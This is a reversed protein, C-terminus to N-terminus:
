NKKGTYESYKKIAKFTIGRWTNGSVKNKYEYGDENLYLTTGGALTAKQDQFLDLPSKTGFNFEETAGFAINANGTTFENSAETFDTLSAFCANGVSVGFFLQCSFAKLKPLSIEKVSTSRKLCYKGVSEVNPFQYSTVGTANEFASEPLSTLNEGKITTVSTNNYLSKMVALSTGAINLTTVNQFYNVFNTGMYNTVEDTTIAAGDLTLTTLAERQAKYTDTSCLDTLSMATNNADGGAIEDWGNVTVGGLTLKNEDLLLWATYVYGSMFKSEKTVDALLDEASICDSVYERGDGDTITFTANSTITNQSPAVVAYGLLPNTTDVSLGAGNAGFQTTVSSTRTPDFYISPQISNGDTEWSYQGTTPLVNSDFSMKVSRITVAEGQKNTIVYRVTAPVHHFTIDVASANAGSSINGESPQFAEGYIYMYESIGKTSNAEEQIFSSPFSMPFSTKWAGMMNNSYEQNCSIDNPNNVPAFCFIVDKTTFKFGSYGGMGDIFNKESSLTAKAPNNDDIAINIKSYCKSDTTPLIINNDALYYGGYMESTNENTWKFKLGGGAAGNVDEWQAGAGRTKTDTNELYGNLKLQIGQSQTNDAINEESSCSTLSAAALLMAAMPCIAAKLRKNTKMTM